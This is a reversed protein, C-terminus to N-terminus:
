RQACKWHYHPADIRIVFNSVFGFIFFEFFVRLFPNM